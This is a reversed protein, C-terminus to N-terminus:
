SSAGVYQGALRAQNSRIKGEVSQKEDNIKIGALLDNDKLEVINELATRARHAEWNALFGTLAGELANM